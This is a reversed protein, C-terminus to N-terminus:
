SPITVTLPNDTFSEIFDRDAKGTSCCPTYRGIFQVGDRTFIFLVVSYPRRSFEGDSAILALKEGDFDIDCYHLAEFSKENYFPDDIDEFKYKSAMSNTLVTRYQTNNKEVVAFDQEDFMIMLTNKKELIDCLLYRNYDTQLSLRQIFRAPKGGDTKLVTLYMKDKERTILYLHRGDEAPKIQIAKESAKLEYIKAIASFDAAGDKGRPIYYINNIEKSVPWDSSLIGDGEIGDRTDSSTFILYCHNNVAFSQTRIGFDADFSYGCLKGEADKSVTVAASVNKPVPMKFYDTLNLYGPGTFTDTAEMPTYDFYEALPLSEANTTGKPTKKMVDLVMQKLPEKDPLDIETSSNLNDYLGAHIFLPFEESSSDAIKREFKSNNHLVEGDKGGIEFGTTWNLDNKGSIKSQIKTGKASSKDGFLVTEKYAIDDQMGNFWHGAAAIVSISLVALITGAIIYKKM